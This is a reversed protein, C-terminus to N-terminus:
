QRPPSNTAPATTANRDAERERWNGSLQNERNAKLVPCDRHFHREPCFHCMPPPKTQCTASTEPNAAPTTNNNNTSTSKPKPAPKSHLEEAEIAEVQVAREFLEEFSNFAVARLVKKISPKVSELLLTITEEEGSDPNLRLSLLYKRAAETLFGTAVKAWLGPNSGTEQFYSECEGIFAKPDEHDAGSSAPKSVEPTRIARIFARLDSLPIAASSITPANNIGVDTPRGATRASPASTVVVPREQTHTTPHVNRSPGAEILDRRSIRMAHNNSIAREETGEPVSRSRVNVTITEYPLPPQETHTIIPRWRIKNRFNPFLTTAEDHDVVVGRQHPQQPASCSKRHRTTRPRAPPARGALRKLREFATNKQVPASRNTRQTTIRSRSKPNEEDLLVPLDLARKSISSPGGRSSVPSGDTPQVSDTRRPITYGLLSRPRQNEKDTGEDVLIPLDLARKPISPSPGSPCPFYALEIIEPSPSRGIPSGPDLRIVDDDDSDSSLALDAALVELPTLVRLAPPPLTVNPPGEVPAVSSRTPRVEVNRVQPTGQVLPQGLSVSPGASLATLGNPTALKNPSAPTDHAPQPLTARPPGEILTNRGRTPRTEISRIRPLVRTPPAGPAKPPGLHSVDPGKTEVNEDTRPAILPPRNAPRHPHVTVLPKKKPNAQTM